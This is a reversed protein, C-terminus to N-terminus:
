SYHHSGKELDKHCGDPDPTYVVSYEFDISSEYSHYLLM